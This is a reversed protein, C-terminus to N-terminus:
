RFLTTYPFLTSRPPHLLLIFFVQENLAAELVPVFTKIADDIDMPLSCGAAWLHGGGGFRKSIAAADYPAAARLSVRTTGDGQERFLAAYVAGDIDMLYSPLGDDM